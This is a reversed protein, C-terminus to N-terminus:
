KPPSPNESLQAVWPYRVVEQGQYGLNRVTPSPPMQAGTSYETGLLRDIANTVIGYNGNEAHFHHLAHHRRLSQMFPSSFQVPLHAACHFFEYAVLAVFATGVAAAAGAAGVPLYSLGISFVLVAPIATYPAGFLISLDNPNMHHSYHIRRWLAASWKARYLLRNHLVARHLFFEVFPYAAAVIAAGGAIQWPSEMLWISTLFALLALGLYLPVDQHSLFAVLFQRKSMPSRMDISQAWAKDNLFFKMSLFM